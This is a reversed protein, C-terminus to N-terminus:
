PAYWEDFSPETSRLNQLVNTVARGFVVVNWLGATRQEPKGEKLLRLGLMATALTQEARALVSATNRPSV